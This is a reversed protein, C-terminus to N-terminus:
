ATNRRRRRAALLGTAGAALLLASTPEPVQGVTISSPDSFNFASQLHTVSGFQLQVWGNIDAGLSSTRRLGIFWTDTSTTLAYGRSDTFASIGLTALDFTQSASFIPFATDNPDLIFYTYIGDVGSGTRDAFTFALDMSDLYGNFNWGQIRTTVAGILIPALSNGLDLQINLYDTATVGDNNVIIGSPGGIVITAEAKQPLSAGAAAAAGLGLTLLEYRKAPSSPLSNM